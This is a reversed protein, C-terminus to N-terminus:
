TVEKIEYEMPIHNGKEDVWFVLSLSFTKQDFPSCMGSSVINLIKDAERQARSKGSQILKM